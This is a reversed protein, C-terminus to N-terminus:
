RADGVPFSDTLFDPLQPLPVTKGALAHTSDACFQLQGATLIYHCCYDLPNGEADRVWGGDWKGDVKVTRKGTIRVSPSFTPCEVNGNFTWSDPISHVEECGPCWHSHFGAGRRLFASVQGMVSEKGADWVPMALGAADM